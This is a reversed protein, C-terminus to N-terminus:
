GIEERAKMYLNFQLHFEELPTGTDTKARHKSYM